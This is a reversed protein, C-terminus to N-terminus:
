DKKTTFLVIFSKKNVLSKARELLTSVEVVGEDQQKLQTSLANTVSRLYNAPHPAVIEMETNELKTAM